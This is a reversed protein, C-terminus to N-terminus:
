GGHIGLKGKQINEAVRAIVPSLDQDEGPPPIIESLAAYLNKTPPSLREEGQLAVAWRAAVAELALQNVVNGAIRWAKWASTTAMPNHDEKGASTPITDVAAPHCLVKNEASVAAAAYQLLMLGSSRGLRHGLFPPLGRDQANLLLNLRRECSNGLIALAMGLEEASLALIQGHFNGGCVVTEDPFILPNDTAANVEIALTKELHALTEGVPGLIQPLCRLSYPDQVDDTFTNTLQSGSLLLNLTKAVALQGPHPRLEHIRPDLPQTNGRLAQFSLAAIGLAQSFLRRGLVWSCFLFALTFATGNILALGEKPLLESLPALGARRLAERGPLEEGGFRAKGEGIVVLALHALPVLDGSAGVSGQEPIVPHVGRNLMELLLEVLAPRVGSAGQLFSNARFLITARVIEDAAAKGVGAAHSRVLNLQLLPLDQDSIRVKSLAGFGTNVGYVPQGHGLIRLLARHSALLKERASPALSLPPRGFVIAEADTLSLHGDLEIM